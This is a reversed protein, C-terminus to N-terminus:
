KTNLNSIIGSIVTRFNDQASEAEGNRNSIIIEAGDKFLIEEEYRQRRLELEEPNISARSLIREQLEPWPGADIYIVTLSDNPVIKQVQQVGQLEMEKFVVQPKSLANMIESKATGYYNGSYNAWEIFDDAQILDTFQQESVFDYKPNEVTEERKTRSTFTKAFYMKEKLLGLSDILTQKGSGSPAMLLVLHGKIEEM